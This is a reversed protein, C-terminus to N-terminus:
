RQGGGDEEWCENAHVETYGCGTMGSRRGNVLNWRGDKGRKGSMEEKKLLHQGEDIEM